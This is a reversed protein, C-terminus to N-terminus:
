ELSRIKRKVGPEEAAVDLIRGVDRGTAVLYDALHVAHAKVIRRM